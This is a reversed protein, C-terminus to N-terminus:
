IRMLHLLLINLLAISASLSASASFSPARAWLYCQYYSNIDALQCYAFHCFFSLYNINSDTMKTM